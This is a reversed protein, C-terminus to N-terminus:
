GGPLECSVPTVVPSPRSVGIGIEVGTENGEDRVGSTGPRGALSKGFSRKDRENAEHTDWRLRGLRNDQQGGPGHCGEMGDPRPGRFAELVLIHVPVWEGAVKVLLYGDRDEKPTLLQGGARRGDSLTRGVSRVRGLSSVQYGSARRVKRWREREAM